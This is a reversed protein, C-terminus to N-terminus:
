PDIELKRRHGETSILNRRRRIGNVYTGATTETTLTASVVVRGRNYDAFIYTLSQVNYNVLISRIHRKAVRVYQSSFKLEYGYICYNTLTRIRYGVGTQNVVIAVTACTSRLDTGQPARRSRRQKELNQSGFWGRGRYKLQVMLKRDIKLQDALVMSTSSPENCPTVVFLELFYSPVSSLKNGAM